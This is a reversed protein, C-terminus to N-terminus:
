LPCGLGKEEPGPQDERKLLHSYPGKPLVNVFRRPGQFSLATNGKHVCSRRTAMLGQVDFHLYGWSTAEKKPVQLGEYPQLGPRLLSDKM